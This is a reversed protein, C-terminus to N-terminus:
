LAARGVEPLELFLEGEKLSAVASLLQDDMLSILTEESAAKWDYQSRSAGDDSKRCQYFICANQKHWRSEEEEM